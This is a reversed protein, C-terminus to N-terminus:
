PLGDTFRGNISVQNGGTGTVLINMANGPLSQVGPLNQANVPLNIKQVWGVSGGSPIGAQQPGGLFCAYLVTGGVPGDYITLKGNPGITPGAMSVELTTCNWTVGPAATATLLCTGTNSQSNQYVNSM